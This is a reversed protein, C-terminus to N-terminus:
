YVFPIFRWTARAYETYAPGFKELSEAEELRATAAFLLTASAALLGGALSPGKLFVGWAGLVGSAYLPHRIWRFAGSRVLVSTREIGLDSPKGHAADPRGLRHLVDFGHYALLASAALLLWSVIQHPALALAFWHRVHLLVLALVAEFAFFRPIGHAGPARLSRWSLALLGVSGAVFLGIEILRGHLL